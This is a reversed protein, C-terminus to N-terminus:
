QLKKWIFKNVRSNCLINRNEIFVVGLQHSECIIFGFSQHNLLPDEAVKELIESLIKKNDFFFNTVILVAVDFVSIRSFNHIATLCLAGVDTMQFALLPLKPLSIFNVILLLSCLFDLFLVACILLTFLLARFPNFKKFFYVQIVILHNFRSQFHFFVVRSLVIFEHFGEFSGLVGCLIFKQLFFPKLSRKWAQKALLFNWSAVVGRLLGSISRAGKFWLFLWCDLSTVVMFFFICIRRQRQCCWHLLLLLLLNQTPCSQCLLCSYARLHPFNQM